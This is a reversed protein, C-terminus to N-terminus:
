SVSLLHRYSRQDFRAARASQFARHTFVRPPPLRRNAQCALFVPDHATNRGPRAQWHYLSRACLWALEKGSSGQRHCIHCATATCERRIGCLFPRLYRHALRHQRNTGRFAPMHDRVLRSFPECVQLAHLSVDHYRNWQWDLLLDSKCYKCLKRTRLQQVLSYSVQDLALVSFM